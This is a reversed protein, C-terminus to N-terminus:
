RSAAVFRSLTDVNRIFTQTTIIRKVQNEPDAERLRGDEAWAGLSHDEALIHDVWDERAEETRPPLGQAVALPDFSRYMDLLAERDAPLIERVLSTEIM